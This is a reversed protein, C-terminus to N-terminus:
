FGLKVTSDIGSISLNDIVVPEVYGLHKVCGNFREESGMVRAWNVRVKSKDVYISETVIKGDKDQNIVIVIEYPEVDEPIVHSEKRFDYEKGYILDKITYEITIYGDSNAATVRYVYDTGYDTKKVRWSRTNFDPSKVLAIIANLNTAINEGNRTLNLTKTKM